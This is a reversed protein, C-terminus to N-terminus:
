EELVESFNLSKRNKDAMKFKPLFPFHWKDRFNYSISCNRAFKPGWPLLSEELLVESIKPSKRIKAAM